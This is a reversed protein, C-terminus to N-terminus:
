GPLAQRQEFGTLDKMSDKLKDYLGLYIPFLERYANAREPNPEYVQSVTGPWRLLPGQGDEMAYFGLQAAGLGSSEIIEPVAVPVGLLDAAMQCWAASRAFGGSALLRDPSGAREELLTQIARIQFLVGELGAKLL